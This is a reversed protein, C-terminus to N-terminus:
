QFGRVVAAKHGQHISENGLPLKVTVSQVTKRHSVLAPCISVFRFSRAVEVVAVSIIFSTWIESSITFRSANLKQVFPVWASEILDRILEYFARFCYAVGPKMTIGNGRDLNEYLFDLREEGATQLKWLRMTRVVQDVETVLESWRDSAVQKLRILSAGCKQQSDM